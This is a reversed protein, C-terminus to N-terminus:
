KTNIMEVEYYPYVRLDHAIYPTIKKKTLYDWIKKYATENADDSFFEDHFSIADSAHNELINFEYRRLRYIMTWEKTPYSTVTTTTSQYEKPLHLNYYTLCVTITTFLITLGIIFYHPVNDSNM